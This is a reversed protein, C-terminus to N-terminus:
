KRDGVKHASLAVLDAGWAAIDVPAKGLSQVADVHFAVGRARCAAGVPAVEQVVGTENNAHLLSVIRTAPGLAAIMAQPDVRGGADAGIWSVRLGRQAPLQPYLDVTSPHDIASVVAHAATLDPGGWALAGLIALRNSETGGSTFALEVAQVGLLRAIEERRGELAARAERGARHLSSPNGLSPASASRM